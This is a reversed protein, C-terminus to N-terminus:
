EGRLAKQMRAIAEDDVRTEPEGQQEYWKPLEGSETMPKRKREDAAQAQAKELTDIGLRVWSGAVKEVYARAFSQNTKELVSEILVNVVERPLHYRTMLSEILQRDARSVEVGHQKQQFFLVPPMDYPSRGKEPKAAHAGRAKKRLLEINFAGTRPNICQNVLRRMQVESLGHALALEAILRMNQPTQLQVPFRRELGQLFVDFRFPLPQQPEPPRLQVFAEDGEQSFATSADMVASVEILRENKAADAAFYMRAREYAKTGLQNLYLRGLVEHRLFANGEMPPCLQYVYSQDKPDMYTRLLLFRELIQRQQHVRDVSFGLLIFPTHDHPLHEDAGLALMTEYLALAEHGMLPGYLLSLVQHDQECLTRCPIITCGEERNM